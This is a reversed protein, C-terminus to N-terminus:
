HSMSERQLSGINPDYGMTLRFDVAGVKFISNRWRKSIPVFTEGPSLTQMSPLDILSVVSFSTYKAILLGSPISHVVLKSTISLMISKM